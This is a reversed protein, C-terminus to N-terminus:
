EQVQGLFKMSETALFAGNSYLQALAKAVTNKACFSPPVLNQSLAQTSVTKLTRLNSDSREGKLLYGNTM